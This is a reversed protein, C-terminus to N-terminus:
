LQLARNESYYKIKNEARYDWHSLIGRVLLSREMLSDAAGQSIWKESVQFSCTIEVLIRIRYEAEVSM